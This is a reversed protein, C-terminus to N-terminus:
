GRTASLHDRSVARCDHGREDAVAAADPKGTFAVDARETALNVSVKAVDPLKAVAKEVHSVCSACTMGEIPISLTSGDGAGHQLPVVNTM